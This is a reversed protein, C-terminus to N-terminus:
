VAATAAAAAAADTAAGPGQRERCRERVREGHTEKAGVGCVRKGMKGKSESEGGGFVRRRLVRGGGNSEGRRM